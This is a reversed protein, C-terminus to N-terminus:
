KKPAIVVRRNNGEGVSHSTVTKRNSIATHVIRREKATMPPLEIEKGSVEVEDATELAIKEIRKTQKQKYGGCDIEIRKRNQKNKNAIISTLYQFAALTTGDKGIVTAPNDAKIELLVRSDTDEILYVQAIHGAKDLLDQLVNKAEEAVSLKLRVEVEADKGGFVGLVGQEGESIVKIEVDDRSAKLVELASNIAEEVSKGKMRVVDSMDIYVEKELKSM